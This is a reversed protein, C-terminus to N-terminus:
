DSYYLHIKYDCGKRVCSNMIERRLTNEAPVLNKSVLHHGLPPLEYKKVLIEGCVDCRVGDAEGTETCTPPTGKIVVPTHSDLVEEDTYNDECKIYYKDEENVCEYDIEYPIKCPLESKNIPEIAKWKHKRKPIVFYKNIDCKNACILTVSGDDNCSAKKIEEIIYNHGLAPIVFPSTTYSGEVTNEDVGSSFYM